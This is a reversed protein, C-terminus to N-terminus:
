YIEGKTIIDKRVFFLISLVYIIAISLFCIFYFLFFKTDIRSLMSYNLPNFSIYVKSSFAMYIVIILSSLIPSLFLNLLFYLGNIVISILFCIIFVKFMLENSYSLEKGFLKITSKDPHQVCYLVLFFVVNYFSTFLVLNIIRSFVIQLRKYQVGIIIPLRFKFDLWFFDGIIFIQFLYYVFWFIPFSYINKKLDELAIGYFFDKILITNGKDATFYYLAIVVFFLVGLFVLLRKYINFCFFISDKKILSLM